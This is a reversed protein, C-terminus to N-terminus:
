SQIRENFWRTVLRQWLKRMRRNNKDSFPFGNAMFQIGNHFMADRKKSARYRINM